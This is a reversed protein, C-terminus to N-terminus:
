KSLDDKVKKSNIYSNVDDIDSQVKDNIYKIGFFGGVVLGASLLFVLVMRVALSSTSVDVQKTTGVDVQLLNTSDTEKNNKYLAGIATAFLSFELREYGSITNNVRLLSAKVGLKEMENTLRIFLSTDGYFLVNGVVETSRLRQFQLVRFVNENVAQFVYDERDDYNDPSITAFRSFTLVGKEYININIFTPDIQVLLFPMMTKLSFDAMILKNISNFNVSVDKLTIGILAFVKRYNEVISRPCSTALVKTTKEKGAVPADDGIVIYSVCQEEMVNISQILQNQVMTKFQAGKAKPVSMEKFVISNSSISVVAVKDHMKNVKLSGGIKSAVSMLDRIQGNEILGEELPITASSSIKIKGNKEVGSIVRITRDSIDFSLM